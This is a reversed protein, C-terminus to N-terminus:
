RSKVGIVRKRLFHLIAFLTAALCAWAFVDGFQTYITKQNLLPLSRTMVAEELLPTSGLIRGAPDILGSIGTNASRALARRNELARFVTMSFHQYPGSTKGFWADNTINILLTAGNKVMARSLDPFIIEYCIQIGLKENQWPITKGKKGPVFDGVHAVIKGLFPLWKKFPVYEGYPVLHSKDYRIWREEPSMLYASVYYEVKNNERAFSPSGLLFDTKVRRIGDMVMETPKSDQLFYFPTASEPWIVLDPNEPVATLSLRNYTNITATQFARDWKIAQDINGQVVTIRAKKAHTILRDVSELRQYGYVLALAIGIIFVLTSMAALRATIGTHHWKKKAFFLLCFFLAANSLTILFSVGYVGLIDSIQILHLREFQSYGLLEWPFGSFIIGRIYELSIWAPSLIMFCRWPTDGSSCLIMSFLAWFLALVAAFLILIIIALYWPLYGYTRMVPVLWYLLSLYHALGAIFGMRFGAGPSLEKLGYLLPVLAFWALWEIGIKPFSATLLLGSIGAAIINQKNLRLQPFWLFVGFL